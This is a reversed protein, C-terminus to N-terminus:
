LSLLFTAFNTLKFTLFQDSSTKERGTLLILYVDWILFDFSKFLISKNSKSRETSPILKRCPYPMRTQSRRNSREIGLSLIRLKIEGSIIPARVPIFSRDLRRGKPIWRRVMGVADRDLLDCSYVSQHSSTEVDEAPHCTRSFDNFIPFFWPIKCWGSFNPFKM